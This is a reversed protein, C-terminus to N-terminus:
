VAFLPRTVIRDEKWVYTYGPFEIPIQYHVEITVNSADRTVKIDEKKVPLKLEQAKLYVENQISKDGKISGFAAQEAMTDYFQSTKFKVPAIKYALLGVAVGIVLWVFCGFRGTGSICRRSRNM